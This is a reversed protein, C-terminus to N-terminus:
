RQVSKRSGVHSPDLPNVECDVSGRSCKASDQGITPGCGVQDRETPGEAEEQPDQNKVEQKSSGPFGRKTEQSSGRARELSTEQHSGQEEVEPDQDQIKGKESELELKVQSVRRGTSCCRLLEWFGIALLATAIMMWVLLSDEEMVEQGQAGVGNIMGFFVMLVIIGKMFGGIIEGSEVGNPRWTRKTNRPRKQDGGATASAARITSGSSAATASSASPGSTGSGGAGDEDMEDQREQDTLPRGSQLVVIRRRPRVWFRSSGVWGERLWVDRRWNDEVIQTWVGHRVEERHNVPNIFSERRDEFDELFLGAPLDRREPQYSRIREVEHVRTAVVLGDERFEVEWHDEREEEMSPYWGHGPWGGGAGDLLRPPQEGSPLICVEPARLAQLRPRVQRPQESTRVVAAEQRLPMWFTTAGRWAGRFRFSDETWQDNILRRGMNVDEYVVSTQRRQELRELSVGPPLDLAQPQYDRHRPLMHVRTLVVMSEGTQVDWFDEPEEEVSLSEVGKLLEAGGGDLPWPQCNVFGEAGVPCGEPCHNFRSPPFVDEGSEWDKSGAGFVRGM